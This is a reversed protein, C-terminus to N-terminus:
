KLRNWGDRLVGLLMLMMLCVEFIVLMCIGLINWIMSLLFFWSVLLMVLIMWVMMVLCCVRGLELLRCVIGVLCNSSVLVVGVLLWVCFRVM